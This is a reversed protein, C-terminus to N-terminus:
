GGRAREDGKATNSLWFLEGLKPPRGLQRWQQAVSRFAEDKSMEWTVFAGSGLDGITVLEHDLLFRLITLGTEIIEAPTTAGGHQRAVWEIDGVHIWDNLGIQLVADVSDVTAM